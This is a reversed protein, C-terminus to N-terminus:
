AAADSAGAKEAKRRQRWDWDACAVVFSVVGAVVALVAMGTVWYVLAYTALQIALSYLYRKLWNRM